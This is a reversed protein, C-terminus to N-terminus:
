GEKIYIILNVHNKGTNNEKSEHNYFNSMYIDNFYDHLDSSRFAFYKLHLITLNIKRRKCIYM